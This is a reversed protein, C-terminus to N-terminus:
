PTVTLTAFKSTGNASATITATGGAGPATTINFYQSISGPAFTLMVSAPGAIAPNSSSLAVSITGPGAPAELLVIGTAANGSAVPNPALAVVAVGVPRVTLTAGRTLGSSTATVTASVSTSVASTTIPFSHSSSGAPITVGTPVAVLGPASSTLTVLVGGSPAPATLTLTGTTAAGGPVSAALELANLSTALTTASAENSPVADGAANMSRVRYTYTTALNLGADTYTFVTPGLTALTSFTGNANKREIKFGTAGVSSNTWTLDVQTTSAAIASLSVPAPPSAAVKAARTQWLDPAIALIGHVWVHIGSVVDLAADQYVGWSSPNSGSAYASTGADVLTPAEFGGTARNFRAIYIGAFHTADSGAFIAIADGADDPVIAPCYYALSPDVLTNVGLLTGNGTPNVRYVNVQPKGNDAGSSSVIQCTWIVGNRYVTKHLKNDGASLPPASGPQTAPGGLPNNATAIYSRSVVPAGQLGLPDSIKFLALGISGARSMMLAPSVPGAAEVPRLTYASANASFPPSPLAINELTRPALSQGSLARSKDLILLRNGTFQGQSFTFMNFAVYFAIGDYGLGPYDAWDTPPTGGRSVDFVYKFWTGTPDSTASVALACTSAVPSSGKWGQAVLVFRGAGADYVCRPHYLNQTPETPFFSGLSVTSVLVGSLTSVRVRSNVVTLLHTPGAAIAPDPTSWGTHVQVDFLLDPIPSNPVAELEPADRPSLVWGTFRPDINDEGDVPPPFPATRVAVGTPPTGHVTERWQADWLTEVLPRVPYPSRLARAYGRPSPEAGARRQGGLLPVALCLAVFWVTGRRCAEQKHSGLALLM